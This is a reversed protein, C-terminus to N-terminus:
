AHVLVHEGEAIEIDAGGKSKAVTVLLASIVTGIAVAVVYMPWNGVLGFVWVGGHPARLSNEFTMVLGGTVASGVMLSPIVRIPDAAAFPIAGETIFSAGLLWAAKGQEKEAENYLRPRLATSLAMALPPVMGAAMVAAMILFRPDDSSAEVGAATLGTVAFAYAVKNVPGGMDFAMMLGLIIGLVIASGGSLDTLWGSLTAAASALPKGVLTLMLGANIFSGVLPIVVVPMVGRVASPVKWRQMWLAIGGGILGAVIAGLFGPSSTVGEVGTPLAVSAAWGGAFGVVIGPRDAIAYAIFGALVPLLFGFLNGGIVFMLGAWWEPNLVQVDAVLESVTVEVIQYGGLAFSLAILIGGAAIFPILYSVGTMLWGRLKAGVGDESKVSTGGSSAAVAAATGAPVPGAEVAAVAEAIMAPADNIARKVGSSLTPKGAFRAKDRVEVDNAFIVGDAAAIVGPDLKKFGGSGQTEIAIEHGAAKAAQELSEAAMYTHAIGTPCSTVGVFKMSKKEKPTPAPAPVAAAPAAAAALPAAAAPAAPAAAANITDVVVQPDTAGLLTDRFESKMLARSLSALIQLHEDGAGEPVTILFVLHAPGDAAGWDIGTTSRGFVVTPEAVGSTRAHPIGIGGEIGTAMIEERAAVDARLVAPNTARGASAAVAVLRDIAADKSTASGDLDLEVLQTTILEM